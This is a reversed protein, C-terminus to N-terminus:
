WCSLSIPLWSAYQLYVTLVRLFFQANKAQLSNDMNQRQLHFESNQVKFDPFGEAWPILFGVLSQIRSDLNWQCLIPRPIWFGLSDQIEKGWANHLVYDM